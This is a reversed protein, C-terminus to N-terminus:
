YVNDILVQVLGRLFIIYPMDAASKKQVYMMLRWANIASVSLSWNYICWWWKRKRVRIRYCATQQDLLDVGGMHSNYKKVIDPMQINITKKDARSWRKVTQLKEKGNEVVEEAQYKNSAMFVAKNDKWVTVNMDDTFVEAFDGRDWDKEVEKKKNIPIPGLRNQRMTGTGGLGKEGLKELLPISTFLNDFYLDTGPPLNGKNALGLVVDPGQGLGTKEILTSEGCYPEVHRIYGGDNCLGWFKFGFRTPKGRIYQKDGHPGFYPVMIEDVSLFETQPMYKKSQQNLIDFIPRVKAFRDTPDLTNNDAFHLVDLVHDFTDRRINDSVLPNFVDPADLWYWRSRPIKNYGSLLQVGQTCLITDKTVYSGYSEKGIQSAYIKSQFEVHELYEDPMFLRYFQYPSTLNKVEESDCENPSPNWPPVKEGVKNTDEAIWERDYEPNKQKKRKKSKKKKKAKKQGLEEESEDDSSHGDTMGPQYEDGDSEMNDDQVVTEKRRTTATARATASRGRARAATGRGRTTTPPTITTTTSPPTIATGGRGRSPTRTGRGRSPTRTGRGGSTSPSPSPSPTSPSQVDGRATATAAARAFLGAGTVPRSTTTEGRVSQIELPLRGSPYNPCKKKAKRKENEEEEDSSTFTMGDFDGYVPDKEKKKKRKKNGPTPPTPPSPPSPTTRPRPTTQPAPPPTQSTAHLAPALVDVPGVERGGDEVEDESETYTDSAGSADLLEKLIGAETLSVTGKGRRSLEGGAQLLRPALRNMNCEPEDSDDSDCDSIVGNPEDPPFM